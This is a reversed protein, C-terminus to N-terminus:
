ASAEVFVKRAATAVDRIDSESLAPHVPLVFSERGLQQAVPLPAVPRGVRDFACERYIETCGGTGCPIGEASIAEVIRDRSWGTKLRDPRVHGYFRYYAHEVCSPVAPLRVAPLDGLAAELVAAHVRRQAVLDPLKRLQLRGVAAQMETMRANTGFRDHLWRFQTSSAPLYSTSRNKGQDKLEWCLRALAADGTTIAGGEGGTSMIKDNCFSWSAAKGDTGVPRGDRRAGQAQACDEILVLGRSRTLETLPGAEAPYGGVHVVVVAATRSTIAPAVTAATLAQSDRDVDVVVPRAGNAVVAGATAIFTASPVIVEDGAGLGLARIAIELAVTGNAVAVAHPATAWEAFEREFARGHTGTWYNVRGSLLVEGAAAADAQDFRPWTPFAGRRVPLGGDIALRDATAARELISM